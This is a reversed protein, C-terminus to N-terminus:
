TARVTQVFPWWSTSPSAVLVVGAAFAPSPTVEGNLLDARWLEKGDTADYAMAHPLSLVVIQPKGAAEFVVPSSWSAGYKRPRQWAINGTKGDVAYLKSKGQESEGQDLQLILKDSWTALSTAHGYANDLHGFNKSWLVKGDMSLGAVDGNAFIVYVRRGDTAMSAAAYGTSEPIEEESSASSPQAPSVIETRWLIRGSGADLCIVERKKADGGSMFVNNRWAIPSNFGVCDPAVKWVVGTGTAPDWNDVYNTGPMHSAGEWGRFAIWNRRLEETSPVDRTAAVAVGAANAGLLKDIDAESKPLGSSFSMGLGLLLAGCAGGAVAVAWRAANPTQTAARERNGLLQPLQKRGNRSKTAAFAFAVAGGLLMWVGSSMRSIHTFYTERLRLDLARIQMKLQEDTPRAQLGVKLEKLQRSHLPDQVQARAYSFIMFLGVILVFIASAWAVM